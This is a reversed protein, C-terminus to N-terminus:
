ERQQQQFTSIYKESKM